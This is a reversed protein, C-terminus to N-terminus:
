WGKAQRLATVHAVHHRGHWSYLALNRALSNAGSQPHNFTRQLQEESLSRLFVVWRKHLLELLDLSISIPLTKGDALEAWLQEEYSTIRPNDETAGLKFRVYSNIHSDAVHHVLQRVTWGGDRYPTDLQEENLGDVAARLNAPCAAIDDIFAAAESSSVSDPFQFKGIPYRPDSMNTSTHYRPVPSFKTPL